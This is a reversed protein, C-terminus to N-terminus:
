NKKYSGRGLTFLAGICTVVGLAGLALIGYFVIHSVEAGTM